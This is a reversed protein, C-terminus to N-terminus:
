EHLTEKMRRFEETTEGSFSGIGVITVLEPIAVLFYECKKLGLM